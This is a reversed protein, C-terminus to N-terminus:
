CGGAVAAGKKRRVVKVGTKGSDPVEVKAGTFYASAGKRFQYLDFDDMPATEEPEVPRIITKIWCNLGGKMVYISNYGMRKAIVWAQDAKIDDNGYFVVKMDEIGLYDQYDPNMLSDLPINIANTLSFSEFDKIPRIDILELTPDGEIIRQAVQDTTVFRSTQTIDWMLNEPEIQQYNQREPVVLLGGALLIMVIALFLYNKNM